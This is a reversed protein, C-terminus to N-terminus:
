SPPFASKFLRRLDSEDAWVILHANVINSVRERFKARVEEPLRSIIRTLEAFTSLLANHYSSGIDGYSDTFDHGCEVFYLLLEAHSEENATSRRYERVVRVADAVRTVGGALVNPCLARHISKKFTNAANATTGFRAHLFRRNVDSARYLDGILKVLGDRDM